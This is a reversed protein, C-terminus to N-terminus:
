ISFTIVQCVSIIVLIIELIIKLLILLTKFSIQLFCKNHGPLWVSSINSFYLSFLSIILSSKQKNNKRNIIKHVTGERGQGGATEEQIGTLGDFGIGAWISIFYSFKRRSFISVKNSITNRNHEHELYSYLDYLLVLICFVM